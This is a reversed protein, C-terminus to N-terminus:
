LRYREKRISRAGEREGGELELSHIAQSKNNENQQGPHAKDRPDILSRKHVKWRRLTKPHYTSM